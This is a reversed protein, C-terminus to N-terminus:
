IRASYQAQFCALFRILNLRTYKEYFILVQLCQHNFACLTGLLNGVPAVPVMRYKLHSITLPKAFSGSTSFPSLLYPFKRIPWSAYAPTLTFISYYKPIRRSSFSNNAGVIATLKVTIMDLM